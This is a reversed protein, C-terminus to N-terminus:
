WVDESAKFTKKAEECQKLDKCNHRGKKEWEKVVKM